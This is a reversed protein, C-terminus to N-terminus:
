HLTRILVPSRSSGPQLRPVQSRMEAPNKCTRCALTIGALQTTFVTTLAIAPAVKKAAAQAISGPSAHLQFMLGLAELLLRTSTGLQPICCANTCRKAITCVESITHAPQKGYAASNASSCVFNGGFDADSDASCHLGLNRLASSVGIASSPIGFMALPQQAPEGGADTIDHIAKLMQGWEGSPSRAREHEPDERCEEVKAPSWSWARHMQRMSLTTSPM